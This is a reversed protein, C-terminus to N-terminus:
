IHLDGWKRTLEMSLPAAPHKEHFVLGGVPVFHLFFILLTTLTPLLLSSVPKRYYIHFLGDHITTFCCRMIDLTLLDPLSITILLSRMLACFLLVIGLDLYVRPAM